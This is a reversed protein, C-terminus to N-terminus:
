HMKRRTDCVVGISEQKAAISVGSQLSNMPVDPDFKIAGSLEGYRLKRSGGSLITEERAPLSPMKHLRLLSGERYKVCVVNCCQKMCDTCRTFCIKRNYMLPPVGVSYKQDWPVLPM